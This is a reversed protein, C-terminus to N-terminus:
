AFSFSLVFSLQDLSFLVSLNLHLSGPQYGPKKRISGDSDVAETMDPRREDAVSWVLLREKRRVVM